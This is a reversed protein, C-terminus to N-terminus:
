KLHLCVFLFLYIQIFLQRVGIIILHKDDFGACSIRMALNSTLWDKKNKGDDDIIYQQIVCIIM